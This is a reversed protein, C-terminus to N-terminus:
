TQWLFKTSTDRLPSLTHLNLLLSPVSAEQLTPRSDFNTTHVAIKTVQSLNHTLAFYFYRGDAKLYSTKHTFAVSIQLIQLPWWTKRFPDITLNLSSLLTLSCIRLLILTLQRDEHSLLELGQATHPLSLYIDDFYTMPEVSTVKGSSMFEYERILLDQSISKLLPELAFSFFTVISHTFFARSVLKYITELSLAEYIVLPINLFVSFSFHKKYVILILVAMPM